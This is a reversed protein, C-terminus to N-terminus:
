YENPLLIVGDILYVKFDELPFNTYAIKETMILTTDNYGRLVASRDHWDVTLKWVQFNKDLKPNKQSGGIMDLLWYCEAAKAVEIVGDTVVPFKPFPSFKHYETTGMSNNIIELIEDKTKM